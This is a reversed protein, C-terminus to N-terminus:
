SYCKIRLMLPYLEQSIFHIDDFMYNFLALWFRVRIAEYVAQSVQSGSLNGGSPRLQRWMEGDQEEATDFWNQLRFLYLARSKSIVQGSISSRWSWWPLLSTSSHPPWCWTSVPLTKGKLFHFLLCILPSYRGASGWHLPHQVLRVGGTERQQVPPLEGTGSTLRYSTNKLLIYILLRLTIYTIYCVDSRNMEGECMLQRASEM